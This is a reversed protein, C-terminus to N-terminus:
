TVVLVLSCPWTYPVKATNARVRVEGSARTISARFRVDSPQPNIALPLLRIYLILNTHEPANKPGITSTASM